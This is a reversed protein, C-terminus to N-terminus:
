RVLARSSQAKAALALPRGAVPRLSDRRCCRQPSSREQVEGGADVVRGDTKIRKKVVGGAAQLVAM